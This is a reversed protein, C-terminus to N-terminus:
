PTTAAHIKKHVSTSLNTAGAMSVPKEAAASAESVSKRKETAVKSAPITTAILTPAAAPMSGSAAVTIEKALVPVANGRRNATAVNMGTGSEKVLSAFAARGGIVSANAKNSQKVAVHTSFTTSFKEKRTAAIANQRRAAKSTASAAYFSRFSDKKNYQVPTHSHAAKAGFTEQEEDVPESLLEYKESHGSAFVPESEAIAINNKVRNKVIYEIVVNKNGVESEDTNVVAGELDNISGTQEALKESHSESKSKQVAAMDSAVSVAVHKAATNNTITTSQVSNRKQKATKNAKRLVAIGTNGAAKNPHLDTNIESKVKDTETVQLPTMVGAGNSVFSTNGGQSNLSMKSSMLVGVIGTVGVVAIFWPRRYLFGPRKKRDNDLRVELADWVAPPPTEAFGGLGERFLNDIHNFNDKM